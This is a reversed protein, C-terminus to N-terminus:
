GADPTEAAPPAPIPNLTVSRQGDKDTPVALQVDEFGVHKLVLQAAGPASNQRLTYPTMGLRVGNQFVEAGAPTSEVTVAVPIPEVTRTRFVLFGGLAVAMTFGFAAAMTVLSSGRRAEPQPIHDPPPTSEGAAGGLTTTERRPRPKSWSEPALENAAEVVPPPTPTHTAPARTHTAPVVVPPRPALGFPTPTSLVTANESTPVAEGSTRPAAVAAGRDLQVADIAAILETTSAFRDDPSKALLKVVIADVSAPIAPVVSSPVPPPSYVHASIIEGLGHVDFPPRACLLHFFVGGLAYMDARHDINPSARCQEPSMYLPTGLLSGTKTHPADAGGDLLKAIGFDLLKARVEGPASEDHVLFVNDPKLDRHVVKLDHAATLADAMQRIINISEVISLPGRRIRGLLTEGELFEMVMYTTGDAMKGFDFVRVIGPHIIQSIARAENIFRQVLGEDTTFGQHLLKVAAKRRLLKHEAVFVEGMGGEGIKKVLKYSGIELGVM